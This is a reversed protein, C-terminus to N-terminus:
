VWELDLSASVTLVQGVTGIPLVSWSTGNFYALDGKAAGALTAISTLGLTTRAAAANADDILSRGFSTLTAVAATDTATFYPVRDATTTLGALATLTADIPQFLASVADVVAAIETDVYLKNAASGDAKPSDNVLPAQSFSRSGDSVILDDVRLLQAPDVRLLARREGSGTVIAVRNAAEIRRVIGALLYTEGAAVTRGSQDVATM